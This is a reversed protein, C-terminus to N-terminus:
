ALLKKVLLDVRASGLGTAADWGKSAPYGTVGAYSNDGSTVDQFPSAADAAAYLAANAAGLRPRGAGARAANVHALIGSWIPAAVSTGGAATWKNRVFISLGPDPSAVAAVDPIGRGTVGKRGALAPKQWV